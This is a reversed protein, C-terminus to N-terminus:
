VTLVKTIKVLCNQWSTHEPTESIFYHLACTIIVTAGWDNTGNDQSLGGSRWFPKKVKPSPQYLELHVQPPPDLGPLLIPLWQLLYSRGEWRLCMGERQELELWIRRGGMLQSDRVVCGEDCLLALANKCSVTTHGGISAIELPLGNAYWQPIGSFHSYWVFIHIKITCCGSLNPGWFTSWFISIM